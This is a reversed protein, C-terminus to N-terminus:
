SFYVTFSIKNLMMILSGVDHDLKIFLGFLKDPWQFYINSPNRMLQHGLQSVGTRLGRDRQDVKKKVKKTKKRPRIDKSKNLLTIVTLRM